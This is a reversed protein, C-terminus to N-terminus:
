ELIGLDIFSFTLQCAKSKTCCKSLIVKRFGLPIKLDKCMHVCVCVYVIYVPM